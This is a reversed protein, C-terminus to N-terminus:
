IGEIERLIRQHKRFRTPTINKSRALARKAISFFISIPFYKRKSSFRGENEVHFFLFRSIQKKKKNKKTKKGTVLFSWLNRFIFRANIDNSNYDTVRKFILM